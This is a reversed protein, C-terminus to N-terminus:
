RAQVAVAHFVRQQFPLGRNVTRGNFVQCLIQCSQVTKSHSGQGDDYTVGPRDSRQDMQATQFEEGIQTSFWADTHRATPMGQVVGAGQQVWEVSWPGDTTQKAM